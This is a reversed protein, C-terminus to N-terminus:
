CALKYVWFIKIEKILEQFILIYMPYVIPIM